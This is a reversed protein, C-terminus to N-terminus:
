NFQKDLIVASIVSIVSDRELLLGNYKIRYCTKGQTQPPGTRGYADGRVASAGNSGQQGYAAAGNPVQSPVQGYGASRAAGNPAAQQQQGYPNQRGAGNPVQGSPPHGNMM